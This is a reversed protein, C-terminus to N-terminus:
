NLDHNIISVDRLNNRAYILMRENMDVGYVIGTTKERVIKTYFGTGCALDIVNENTIYGIESEFTPKELFMHVGIKANM